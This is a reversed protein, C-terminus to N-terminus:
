KTLIRGILVKARESKYYPMRSINVAINQNSCYQNYYEKSQDIESRRMIDFWNIWNYDSTDTTDTKLGLAHIMPHIQIYDKGNNLMIQLRLLIFYVYSESNFKGAGLVIQFRDIDNPELAQFIKHKVEYTKASDPLNIDYRNTVLIRFHSSMDREYIRWTSDVRIRAETLAITKNGNNILSIDLTDGSIFSDVVIIDKDLSHTIKKSKEFLYDINQLFLVLSAVITTVLLIYSKYKQWVETKHKM